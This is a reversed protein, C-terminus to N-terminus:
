LVALERLVAEVESLRDNFKGKADDLTKEEAKALKKAAGKLAQYGADLREAVRALQADGAKGLEQVAGTIEALAADDGARRAMWAKVLTPQLTLIKNIAEGVRGARRSRLSTQHTKPSISLEIRAYLMSALFFAFFGGVLLLPEQLMYVKSFRYTVQFPVNHHRVLNAKRLVIVTRGLVDLYTVRTDRAESDVDFPTSWQVDSAFEPLIVRVELQDIAAEPFPSAFSINLV